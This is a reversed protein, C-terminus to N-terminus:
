NLESEYLDHFVQFIIKEPRSLMYNLHQDHIDKFLLISELFLYDLLDFISFNVSLDSFLQLLLM